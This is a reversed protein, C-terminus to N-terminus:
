SDLAKQGFGKSHINPLYMYSDHYQKGSDCGSTEKALSKEITKGGITM